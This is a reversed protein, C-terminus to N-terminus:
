YHEDAFLHYLAKSLVPGVKNCDQNKQLNKLLNVAEKERAMAPTDKGVLDLRTPISDIADYLKVFTPYVQRRLLVIFTSSPLLQM